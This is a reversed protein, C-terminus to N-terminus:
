KEPLKIVQGVKLKSADTIEPNLTMIEKFRKGDGLQTKAISFLTDKAQVTYTKGGKPTPTPAPTVMPTPAPTVVPTPTGTSIGSMDGGGAAPTPNHTPPAVEPQKQCGLTVLAAILTLSVLYRM